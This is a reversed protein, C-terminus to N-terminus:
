PIKSVCRIGEGKRAPRFCGLCSQCDAKRRDGSLWRKLLDPERILPRSMSFYDAFGDNLIEEMVEISRLGGVLMLPVKPVVKRIAKVLDLFYAEDERDSINPRVAGLRRSGPKGGSVEVAAIGAAALRSVLYESDEITVSGEQFDSGNIKIMIPFNSGVAAQMDEFVELTFRCRNELSGGYLDSRRNRLPSLFQSLLYGHAGHLQIGDFGSKQIRLAANVFSEKVRELDKLTLHQPIERYVKDSVASPAVPSLGSVERNAQGGCHVLQAVLSGGEEHVCKALRTLGPVSSDDVVSLQGLNQKGEPAVYMYSSIILGVNGNALDRYIDVLKPTVHGDRDALGEWTASRVSRNKLSIGALKTQDFLTKM